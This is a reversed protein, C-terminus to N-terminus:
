SNATKAQDDVSKYIEVVKALYDSCERVATVFEPFKASLRDFTAKAEAAASGSWVNDQGVKNFETRIEDLNSEMEKSCKSLQSSIEQIEDYSLTSGQM